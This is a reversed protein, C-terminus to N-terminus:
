LSITWCGLKIYEIGTKNKIGSRKTGAHCQRFNMLYESKESAESWVSTPFVINCRVLQLLQLSQIAIVGSGSGM